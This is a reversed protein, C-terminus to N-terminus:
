RRRSAFCTARGAIGAPPLFTRHSSLTCDFSQRSRLYGTPASRRPDRRELARTSAAGDQRLVLATTREGAQAIPLQAIHLDFVARGPELPRRPQLFYPVSGAFAPNTKAPPNQNWNHELMRTKLDPVDGSGASPAISRNWSRTRRRSGARSPARLVDPHWMAAPLLLLELVRHGPRRDSDFEASLPFYPEAKAYTVADDPQTSCWTTSAGM